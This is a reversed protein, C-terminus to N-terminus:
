QIWSGVSDRRPDVRKTNRRRGKSGRLRLLLFGLASLVELETLARVVPAESTSSPVAEVVRLEV